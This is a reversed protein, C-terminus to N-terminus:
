GTFPDRKMFWIYTEEYPHKVKCYEKFGFRAYILRMRKITTEVYIPEGTSDAIKFIERRIENTAANGPLEESALLWACWGTRPRIRDVMSRLMTAQIGKRIGTVFITTNLQRWFLDPSTRKNKLHYFFVVGTRDSSLYNGKYTRAEEYCHRLLKRFKHADGPKVMWTMGPSSMFAKELIDLAKNCDQATQILEM